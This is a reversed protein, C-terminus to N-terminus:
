LALIGPLTSNISSKANIINFNYNNNNKNYLSKKNKFGEILKNFDKDIFYKIDLFDSM